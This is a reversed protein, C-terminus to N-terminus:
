PTALVAVVIEHGYAGDEGHLWQGEGTFLDEAFTCESRGRLEVALLDLCGPDTLELFLTGEGDPNLLRIPSPLGAGARWAGFAPLSDTLSRVLAEFAPGAFRWRAPTLVCRGVTLRPLYSTQRLLWATPLYLERGIQLDGLLRYIPLLEPATFRHANSIIPVVECGRLKSRLRISGDAGASLWLDDLRVQLAADVSARALCPIEHARFPPHLLVNGHRDEPLHLLEAVVRGAHVAAEHSAIAKAHADIAPDLHAFRGITAAASCGGAGLIVMRLTGGVAAAMCYATFTAADDRPDECAGALELTALDLEEVGDAIARKVQPHLLEEIATAAPEVPAPAPAKGLDDLGELLPAVATTHQGHPVGIDSDLALLLPVERDGFRERFSAHFATLRGPAAPAVRSLLSLGVLLEDRLAATLQLAGPRFADLQFLAEARTGIGNTSTAPM